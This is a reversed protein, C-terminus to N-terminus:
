GYGVGLDELHDGGGGGSGGSRVMGKRAFLRRGAEGHAVVGACAAEEVGVGHALLGGIVGALVDGAGGTGLPACMGDYVWVRGSPAVM